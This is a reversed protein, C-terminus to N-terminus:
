ADNMRSSLFDEMALSCGRPESGASRGLLRFGDGVYTGLDETLLAAVSGVNALDLHALVGVEGEPLPSLSLPDLVLTRVWPPGRHFRNELAGGDERSSLGKRRWRETLVPEYFQSLLETMGYENVIRSEDVGFVSRLGAYLDTRALERSRGKYGGTEMLRSGRPLSVRWGEAMAEDMWRVLSFATGAVLVPEGSDVAGALAGRLRGSDLNGEADVFFGSEGDGFSKAVQEMMFSLSSDPADFTSPLLSIIRIPKSGDRAATGGPQGPDGTGEVEKLIEEGCLLHAQFNPLLSARYLSLDLVWHKGRREAGHTTGSTRFVAEAQDPDGVILPATKFARTPLFPISEWREVREPDVGRRAVFAGYASNESCQFRFVRLALENFSTDPLPSGVGRGMVAKVEIALEEFTV